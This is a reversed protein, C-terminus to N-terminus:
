GAATWVVVCLAHARARPARAAESGPGGLLGGLDWAQNWGDPERRARMSPANGQRSGGHIAQLVRLDQRKGSETLTISIRAKGRGM